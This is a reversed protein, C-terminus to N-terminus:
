SVMEPVSRTPINTGLKFNAVKGAVDPAMEALGAGGAEVMKGLESSAKMPFELTEKSPLLNKTAAGVADMIGPEQSFGSTDYGADSLQKLVAAEDFTSTDYGAQDLQEKLSAM